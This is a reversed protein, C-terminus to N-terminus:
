KFKCKGAYKKHKGKMGRTDYLKFVFKLDERFMKIKASRKSANGKFIYFKKTARHFPVKFHKEKRGEHKSYVNQSVIRLENHYTDFRMEFEGRPKHGEYTNKGYKCVMTATDDSFGVKDGFESFIQANVSMTMAALAAGLLIKKM